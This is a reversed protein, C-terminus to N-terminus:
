LEPVLLVRCLRVDQLLSCGLFVHAKAKSCTVCVLFSNVSHYSTRESSAEAVRDNM